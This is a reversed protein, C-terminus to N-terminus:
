SQDAAEGPMDVKWIKAQDTEFPYVHVMWNFLVPQFRGGAADCDSQTAISGLMGFKADPGFYVSRDSGPPAWCINTHQHWRAISLPIRADLQDPTANRPATYMAGVLKYGAGDKTYLLSTPRTPDFRTLAALGNAMNTFHYHPQPINALFPKYGDAEAVRYDAYKALTVRLSSVVADARQLDGAQAPRAPSLTMHPGMTMDGSMGPDTMNGMPAMGPMTGAAPTSSQAAVVCSSACPASPAFNKVAAIAVSLAAITLASTIVVIRIM